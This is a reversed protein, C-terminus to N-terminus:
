REIGSGQPGPLLAARTEAPFHEEYWARLEALAPDRLNRALYGWSRPIHQLYEAKGDRAQLRAWLGLLRTNRQAGFDVYARRLAPEDFAPERARAEACYYALLAEELAPAVDVRADQLLSALDFAFHENLADQFDIIGVRQRGGRQPLWILNPSHFDRLFWGGPLALLRDLVSRWLRAFTARAAAPAREGKVLPWYWDILLEVEIEFAARDRRPLTFSSGDPLPLRAPVPVSRLHLLVDVAARLLEGQAVRGAALEAGFVREGLDEILLIGHDLDSALTAPASLQAGRLAAGVAMFARAMDEDALCAIRSYSKGARVPPGDAQRPADMLLATAGARLLRAYSRKSADGQMHVIRADRWAPLQDLFAFLFALRAVHVSAAGIGAVTVRRLGPDATAQLTIEYRSEAPLTASREPWEVLLAGSDLAEELGLEDEEEPGGLRYFDCHTITLRPTEYVHMLAFTPSPVEGAEVGPLARILARALTTKGSGLEGRLAVVDGKGLKLALLEALRVVDREECLRTFQSSM